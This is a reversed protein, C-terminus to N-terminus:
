DNRMTSFSIERFSASSLYRRRFNNSIIAAIVISVLGGLIYALFAIFIGFGFLLAVIASTLAYIGGLVLLGAMPTSLSDEDIELYGEDFTDTYSTKEVVTM